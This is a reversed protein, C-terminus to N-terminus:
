AMIKKLAALNEAKNFIAKIPINFGQIAASKIIDVSSKLQLAYSDNKSLIYQEVEETDPNIIWYEQVKHNAYDEFKVGRDRKETSSSLVEVVFSPAPHLMTNKDFMEVQTVNFFVIDPEFDNRTLHILVKESAVEGLNHLGVYVNLLHFLNGVALYHKRKVPSNLIIEGEIFEAKTEDHLNELFHQRREKEDNLFELLEDVVLPLNPAHKLDEIKNRDITLPM